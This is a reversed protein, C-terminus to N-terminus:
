RGEKWFWFRRPPSPVEEWPSPKRYVWSQIDTDSKDPEAPYYVEVLFSYSNDPLLEETTNDGYTLTGEWINPNTSVQWKFDYNLAVKGEPKYLYCKYEHAGSGGWSRWTFTVVDEQSIGAPGEIIEVHPLDSEIWWYYTNGGIGRTEQTEYNGAKDMYRVKFAYARGPTLNTYSTSLYSDGEVFDSWGLDKGELMWRVLWTDSLSEGTIQNAPDYSSWTFSASTSSSSATTEVISTVMPTTDVQIKIGTDSTIVENGARDYIRFRIRNFDRSEMQFLATDVQVVEEVNVAGEFGSPLTIYDKQWEGWYFKKNLTDYLYLSYMPPSDSLTTENLGSCDNVSAGLNVDPNKDIVKIRVGPTRSVTWTDQSNEVWTFARNLLDTPYDYVPYVESYYVEPTEEVVVPPATDKLLFLLSSDGGDDEPISYSPPPIEENGANDTARAEIAYGGETPPYFVYQWQSYDGRGSTDEVLEWTGWEYQSENEPWAGGQNRRGTRIRVVDIGTPYLVSDYAVGSVKVPLTNQANFIYVTRGDLQIPFLGTDPTSSDRPPVNIETFPPEVDVYISQFNIVVEKLVPSVSSQSTKLFPRYQLYRSIPHVRVEDFYAQSSTYLSLNSPTFTPNNIRGYGVDQINVTIAEDGQFSWRKWNVLYREGSTYTGLFSSDEVVGDNIYQLYVEGNEFYVLYGTDGSVEELPGFTQNSIASVTKGSIPTVWHYLSFYEEIEKQSTVGTPTSATIELHLNVEEIGSVEGWRSWLSGDLTDDNFSDRWRVIYEEGGKVGYAYPPSWRGDIDTDSLPTDSDRTYLIIFRRLAHSTILPESLAGQSIKVLDIKGSFGETSGGLFLSPNGPYLIDGEAFTNTYKPIGDVYLILNNGGYTFALHYWEFFSFADPDTATYSGTSTYIKVQFHGSSDTGLWWGSNQGDGMSLISQATSSVTPYVWCEVTLTRLALSSSYPVEVYDGSSFSLSWHTPYEGEYTWTAGWVNGHNDFGSSDLATDANGGEDLYWLGRTYIDKKVLFDEGEWSIKEWIVPVQADRWSSFLIGTDPYSVGNWELYLDGPVTDGDVNEAWWYYSTAQWLLQSDGGSWDTQTWAFLLLPSLFLLTLFFKCKKM